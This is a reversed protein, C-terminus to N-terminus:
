IDLLIRITASPSSRISIPNFNILSITTSSYDKAKIQCVRRINKCAPTSMCSARALMKFCLYYPLNRNRISRAFTKTLIMVLKLSNSEDDLHHLCLYVCVRHPSRFFYTCRCINHDIKKTWRKWSMLSNNEDDLHHLYLYVCVQMTVNDLSFKSGISIIKLRSKLTDNNPM